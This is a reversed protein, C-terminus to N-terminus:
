VDFSDDGLEAALDLADLDGVIVRECFETARVAAEEDIEVAVVECDHEHFVKSMYGTACGLELVRKGSGVLRVVRAHTSDSELDIEAEYRSVRVERPGSARESRSPRRGTARRM